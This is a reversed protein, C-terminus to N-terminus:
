LHTAAFACAGGVRRALPSPLLHGPSYIGARVIATRTPRHPRQPHLCHPPLRQLSLINTGAGAGAGAGGADRAPIRTL